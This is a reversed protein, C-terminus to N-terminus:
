NFLFFCKINHRCLISFLFPFLKKKELTQRRLFLCFYCSIEYFISPQNNDFHQNFDRCFVHVNNTNKHTNFHLRTEINHFFCVVKYPFFSSFSSQHSPKFFLFCVFFM